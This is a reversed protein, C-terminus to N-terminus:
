TVHPEDDQVQKDEDGELMAGETWHALGTHEAEAGNGGHHAPRRNERPSHAAAM